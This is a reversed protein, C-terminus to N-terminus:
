FWVTCCFLCHELFLMVSVIKFSTLMRMDVEVSVALTM